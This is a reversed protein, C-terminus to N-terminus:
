KEDSTLAESATEKDRIDERFAELEKIEEPTPLIDKVLEGFRLNLDQIRTRILILREEKTMNTEPRRM